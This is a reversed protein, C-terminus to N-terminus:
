DKAIPGKYLKVLTQKETLRKAEEIEDGDSVKAIYIVEPEKEKFFVFEEDHDAYFQYNNLM